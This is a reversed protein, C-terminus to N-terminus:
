HHYHMQSLVLNHFLKILAKARLSVIGSYNPCGFTTVLVVKPNEGLSILLFVLSTCPNMGSFVLCSVHNWLEFSEM